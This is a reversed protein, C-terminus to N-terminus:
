QECFKLEGNIKTTQKENRRIGMSGGREERSEGAGVWSGLKGTHRGPDGTNRGIEEAEATGLGRVGGQSAGQLKWGCGM